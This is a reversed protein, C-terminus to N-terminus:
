KVMDYVTALIEATMARSVPASPSFEGGGTGNMIGLKRMALVSQMAWAPIADNDAFVPVSDGVDARIVNQLIVAVEARTVTSKPDFRVMGDDGVSGSVFGLKAAARVYNRANDSIQDDDAFAVSKVEPIDDLGITKMLMTVFEERTVNDDPSFYALGDHYEGSMIGADTMKVAANYAWHGDLDAYEVGSKNKNIRVSAVIEDSWNGYVDRARMAFTDRGSKGDAPTYIFEGAAADTVVVSGKKPQKTVVLEIAEGEPDYVSVSGHISGGRMTEMYMEAGGSAVTPSLDVSDIVLVHCETAYGSGCSVYFTADATSSAPRFSLGDINRRSITQNVAVPAGDLCLTGAAPDPLTLITVEDVPVGLSYDFCEASFQASRSACGTVTVGIDRALVGLAPSVVGKSAAFASTTFAVAILLIFLAFASLKTKKSVTKM